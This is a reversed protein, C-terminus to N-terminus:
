LQRDKSHLRDRLQRGKIVLKESVWMVGVGVASFASFGTIGGVIEALEEPTSKKM